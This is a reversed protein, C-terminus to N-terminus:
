IKYLVLTFLECFLRNIISYLKDEFQLVPNQTKKDKDESQMCLM